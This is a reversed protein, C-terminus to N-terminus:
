KNKKYYDNINDPMKQYENKQYQSIQTKNKQQKIKEQENINRKSFGGIILGLGLGAILGCIAILYLTQTTTTDQIIKPQRPKETVGIYRSESTEKSINTLSLAGAIMNSYKYYFLASNYETKNELSQAYEYYSVALIPEIEQQRSKLINSTASNNARNTKDIWIDIDDIGLTEIALNAKVLAELAEFLAAAPYNNEKNEKASDLLAEAGAEGILYYSGQAIVQSYIVAQQADDIYETALTNIESNNIEGTDDFSKSINIWWEVSNSRQKAKALYEMAKLPLNSLYSTNAASIFYEAESARKQAAGIGQLSNMGQIEANQANEKKTHYYITIDEILEVLYDDRNQREQDYYQCSYYVQQSDILSQFSFTLSTYYNEQNYQEEAEKLWDESTHLYSRIEDRYYYNNFLDSYNPIKLKVEEFLDSANDYLKQAQNYLKSAMPQMANLFDETLIEGELEEFEFRWGTFNELAENIDAVEVIDIMYNKEAYNDLFDSNQGKPILFRTAGVSYAADIKQQIGGIPGISGDPNIMGTMVTKNSMNYGNLLSITAATMVAGASPGGIIPATTRVVFFYDYESPDVCCNKDNRIYASAVKVALRASGQMDIEALPLTDVFVRGSGHDQITVTITSVVGILDNNNTYAVAPAYVTLNRYNIVINEEYLKGPELQATPNQPFSMLLVITLGFIISIKNNMNIVSKIKNKKTNM